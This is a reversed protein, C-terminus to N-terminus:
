GHRRRIEAVSAQALQELVALDLDALQKFYLCSKGVKHKGLRALLDGHGEEQPMLYVVIEKSRIAFGLLPADGTRGSEYAYHYAGHGVIGAGWMTAPQGTVKDFLRILARCDAIQQPSGKAALYDDVSAATPRTKNDAM